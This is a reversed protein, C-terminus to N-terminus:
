GHHGPRRGGVDPRVVPRRAGDRHRPLAPSRATRVYRRGCRRRSGSGPLTGIDTGNYARIAEAFRALGADLREVMAADAGKQPAFIQAAGREGFFPNNVDCAVQIETDRLAVMCASGDIRAVRGTSTGRGPLINGAEDFFRYGLATLLGMGGDNTASGGIGVLIKRCGHRLADAIMQGTGYTTTREPNREEPLLLPLGAAASLEIVATKGNDVIGYRADLPRMLPDNVRVTCFEGGM